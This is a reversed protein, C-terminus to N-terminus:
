TPDLKCGPVSDYDTIACSVPATGSCLDPNWTCGSRTLCSGETTVTNTGCNVNGICGGKHCGTGRSCTDATRNECRDPVGSRTAMELFYRVEGGTAVDSARLTLKNTGEVCYDFDTGSLTIKTSTRTWTSPTSSGGVGLSTSCRCVPCSDETTTASCGQIDSCRFVGDLTMCSAQAFISVAVGFRTYAKGGDLLEIYGSSVNETAPVTPCSAVGQVKFYMASTVVRKLAWLGFPSGGCSDFSSAKAPKFNRCSDLPACICAATGSRCSYKGQREEDCMCESGELELCTDINGSGGYGSGGNRTNAPETGSSGGCSLLFLALLVQSGVLYKEPGNALTANETNVGRLNMTTMSICSDQTITANFYRLGPESHPPWRFGHPGKGLVV